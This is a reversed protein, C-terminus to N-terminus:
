GRAELLPLNAETPVYIVETNGDNLGEIFKYKLYEESISGAIIENAKAIGEARIVDAQSKLDASELEAQAERVAIQRNYDAEALQAKGQLGKQWVNYTPLGFMLIGIVVLVAIVGLVTPKTNAKKNQKM